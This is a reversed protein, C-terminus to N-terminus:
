LAAKLEARVAGPIAAFNDAVAQDVAAAITAADLPVGAGNASLKTAIATALADTDVAPAVQPVGTPSSTGGVAMSRWLDFQRDNGIASSTIIQDSNQVEEDSTLSRFYGPGILAIGRAPSQIRIMTDELVLPPTATPTPTIPTGGSGATGTFFAHVDCMTGHADFANAHLHPGTATGAGWAGVRGGTYGINDGQRVARPSGTNHTGDSFASLHLHYFAMGDARRLVARALNTVPSYYNTLTGDFSAQIVTGVGVAYDTGGASGRARHCAWDCSVRWGSWYNHINTM